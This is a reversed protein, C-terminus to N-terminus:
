NWSSFNQKKKDFFNHKRAQRNSKGKGKFSEDRQDGKGKGKRRMATERRDLEAQQQSLARAAMDARKVLAQAAAASKALASDAQDRLAAADPDGAGGTRGKAMGGGFSSKESGRAPYILGQRTRAALLVQEDLKKTESPISLEPDRQLARRAWSERQLADYVVTLLPTGGILREEEALRFVVRTEM